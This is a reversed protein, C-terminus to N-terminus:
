YKDNLIRSVTSLSINFEKAVARQSKLEKYRDKIKQQQEKDILKKSNEKFKLFEEYDDKHIFVYDDISCSRDQLDYVGKDMKHNENEKYRHSNYDDIFKSDEKTRPAFVLIYPYKLVSEIISKIKVGNHIINIKTENSSDKFDVNKRFWFAM